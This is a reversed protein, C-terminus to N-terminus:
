WTFISNLLLLHKAYDESVERDLREGLKRAIEEIGIEKENFKIALDEVHPKIKLFGEKISDLQEGFDSKIQNPTNEWGLVSFLNRLALIESNKM